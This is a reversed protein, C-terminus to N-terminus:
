VFKDGEGPAVKVRFGGKKFYVNIIDCDEGQQSEKRLTTVEIWELDKYLLVVYGTEFPPAGGAVRAGFHVRLCNLGTSAATVLTCEVM